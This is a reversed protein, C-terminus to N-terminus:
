HNAWDQLVVLQIQGDFFYRPPGNGQPDAGLLVPSNNRTVDATYPGAKTTGADSNDIWIWVSGKGDYAGTILYSRDNKLKDAPYTAYRYSGSVHVGFRLIANSAGSGNPNRVELSFGAGDAKGLIVSTQGDAPIPQDFKVAATVMYGNNINNDADMFNLSQKAAADFDLVTGFFPMGGLQSVGSPAGASNLPQIIPTNGAVTGVVTTGAADSDWSNLYVLGNDDEIVARAKALDYDTTLSDFEERLSSLYLEGVASPITYASTGLGLSKAYAVGAMLNGTQFQFEVGHFGNNKAALIKAQMAAVDAGDSKSMLEQLRVHPRLSIYADTALLRRAMSLNDAMSSFARLVAPRGQQAYAASNALLADLVGQIFADNPTKEKIEIFLLQDAAMLTADALIQGLTAGDTDGDDNHDVYITGNEHKIDLEVLDVGAAIAGHIQALSDQLSSASNKYCNHCSIPVEHGNATTAVTRTVGSWYPDTNCSVNHSDNSWGSLWETPLCAQCADDSKPTGAPICVADIACEDAACPHAEGGQGGQGGQGAAAGMGSATTSAAGQGGEGQGGAGTSATTAAIAAATEADDGCAALGGVFIVALICASALLPKHETKSSSDGIM